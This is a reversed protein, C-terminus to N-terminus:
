SPSGAGSENADTSKGLAEEALGRVDPRSSRVAGDLLKRAAAADRHGPAIKLLAGAARVRLIRPALLNRVKRALPDAARAAGISELGEIAAFARSDDDLFAILPDVARDDGFGALAVAAQFRVEPNKDELLETIWGAARRDGVAGLACAVNARVEADGDHVADCLPEYAREVDIEVLSVAAQFRVDPPGDRLAEALPDFAAPDALRGLAIIASQRVEPHPDQLRLLLPATATKRELDGLSLAASRRVEFRPDDLATILAAVAQDRATDAQGADGDPAPAPLDGLADAAAVRARVDSSAIDRLAADFTISQPRYFM